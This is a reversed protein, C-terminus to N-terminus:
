TYLTFHVRVIVWAQWAIQMNGGGSAARVIPNALFVCCSMDLTDRRGRLIFISRELAGHFFSSFHLGDESFSAFADRRDCLVVKSVNHLM